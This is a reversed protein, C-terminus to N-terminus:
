TTSLWRDLLFFNRMCLLFWAHTHLLGDPFAHLPPMLPSGFVEEPM